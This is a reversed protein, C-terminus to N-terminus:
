AVAGLAAGVGRPMRSVLLGADVGRAVAPDAAITALVPAGVAAEVDVKSLSRGPEAVLVVGSPRVPSAAVRSLALYCPRTVLVSTTSQEVFWQAGRADVHSPWLLGCDVAVSGALADLQAGMAEGPEADPLGVQGKPILALQATVKCQIRGLADPPGSAGGALWEAIGPSPPHSTGLIAPQDGGLDILTTQTGKKASQLAYLAAVVSCGAGGKLSWFAITM